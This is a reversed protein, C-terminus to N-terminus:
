KKKAPPQPFGEPLDLPEPAIGTYEEVPFSEDAWLATMHAALSMDELNCTARCFQRLHEWAEKLREEPQWNGEDDRDLEPLLERLAVRHEAVIPRNLELGRPLIRRAAAAGDVAKEQILEESKNEYLGLAIHIGLRSLAERWTGFTEEWEELTGIPMDGVQSIKSMAIPSHSGYLGHTNDHAQIEGNELVFWASPLAQVDLRRLLPHSRDPGIYTHVWDPFHEEAYGGAALNRQGIDTYRAVFEELLQRVVDKAAAAEYVRMERLRDPPVTERGACAGWITLFLLLSCVPAQLKM